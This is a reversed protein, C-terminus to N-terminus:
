RCAPRYGLRVHVRGPWYGGNDGPMVRAPRQTLALSRIRADDGVDLRTEILPLGARMIYQEGFTRLDAGSAQEIADLLDRWTANGFAHRRLFLQLGRRFADDGTLFELQRLVSPAKNYVIPGYNSKALDLNPLEQWVPTTGSTVDVGYASPKNRLYFTKWAGSEPHLDQQMKAAMFTSFGEKLWLDDFWRMTVLDGFWQHAVEHYITAARGLRRTLTPPERFIFKTENYFLAGAHEMGGFPFAPALLLDLKAFPYGSDFYRELWRLGQQNLRLLETTDVEAVRSRRVFLRMDRAVDRAGADATTADAATHAAKLTAYPGAAFAAVYTSIPETQAFHHTTAGGDHEHSSDTSVLPGNTLTIWAPPTTIHWTFRAKIDPQDFVPFLLQADSPVLLTYLYRANDPADDFAIIAAGAAAVPATFEVTITNSGPRLLAAPVVIHGDSWTVDAVANNVRTEGLARGRFDLVLDGASTDRHLEITVIGPARDAARVDLRIDYRVDSLTAARHRALELSVGTTIPLLQTGNRPTYACAGGASATLVAVCLGALSYRRMHYDGASGNPATVHTLSAISDLNRPTHHRAM